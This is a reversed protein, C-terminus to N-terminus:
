HGEESGTGLARYREQAPPGPRSVTSLTTEPLTGQKALGTKQEAKKVQSVILNCAQPSKLLTEQFAALQGPDM